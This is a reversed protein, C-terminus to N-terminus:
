EYVLKITYLFHIKRLYNMIQPVIDKSTDIRYIFSNYAERIRYRWLIKNIHEFFVQKFADQESLDIKEKIIELLIQNLNELTNGMDSIILNDDLKQIRFIEAKKNSHFSHKLEFDITGNENQKIWNCFSSFTLKSVDKFLKQM